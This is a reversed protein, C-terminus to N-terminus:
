LAEFIIVGNTWSKHTEHLWALLTFSLWGEKLQDAAILRGCQADHHLDRAADLVDDVLHLGQQEVPLLLVLVHPVLVLIGVDPLLGQKISAAADAAQQGRQLIGAMCRM